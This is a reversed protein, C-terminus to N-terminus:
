GKRKKNAEPFITSPPANDQRKDNLLKARHWSLRSRTVRPESKRSKEWFLAQTDIAQPTFVKTKSPNCHFSEWSLDPQQKDIPPVRGKPPRTL